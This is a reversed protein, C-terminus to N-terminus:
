SKGQKVEDLRRVFDDLVAPEFAAEPQRIVDVSVSKFREKRHNLPPAILV